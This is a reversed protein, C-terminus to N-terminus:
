YRAVNRANEIAAILDKAYFVKEDSDICLIVKDNSNWHSKIILTNGDGSYTYEKVENIVTIM